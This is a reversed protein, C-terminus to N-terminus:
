TENHQYRLETDQIGAQVASLEVFWDPTCRSDPGLVGNECHKVLASDLAGELTAVRAKLKEVYTESLAYAFRLNDVEDHKNM